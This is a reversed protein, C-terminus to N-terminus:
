YKYNKAQSTFLKYYLGDEQKMLEKHTDYAVIEGNDLVLIKDCFISSSMRHSIYLATKGKILNHFNLYIESEAIPDLASTPEDLVILSSDKYLARAIAVKQEEGGSLNVGDEHYSKSINSNIGNPLSDIKPALGIMKATEYAEDNKDKSGTINEGLSYAFLKYDQFVASIAKLYAVREYEKINIGNILIEGEELEYLRMLLKVTTTKGSGNLGVMSIAKGGEIIFSVSKLVYNETNPYKFSVNKFEISDITELVRTGNNPDDPIALLDMLPKVYHASAKLDLVNDFIRNATTGIQIASSIYFSFSGVGIEKLFTRYAVLGYIIGMQVYNVLTLFAQYRITKSTFGTIEKAIEREYATYKEEMMSSLNSLRYEKGRKEDFITNLYYGLKRNIPILDQQFKIRAKMSVFNILVSLGVSATIVLIIWYNFMVIIAALSVITIINSVLEGFCRMIYYIAGFNNIAFNAREKMDLFNPDELYYYPVRMVKESLLAQTKEATKVRSVSIIRELTKSFLKFSLNILVVLAVILISNSENGESISDLILKLSYSNYVVLGSNLVSELLVWLFFPKHVKFAVKLFKFITM